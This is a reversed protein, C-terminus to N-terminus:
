NVGFVAAEEVKLHRYIMKESEQNTPDEVAGEKNTLHGFNISELTVNKQLSKVIM